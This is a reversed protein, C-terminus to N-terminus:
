RVPRAPRMRRLGRNEAVLHAILDGLRWNGCPTPLDLQAPSVEAVVALSMATAARDLTRPDLKSLVSVV